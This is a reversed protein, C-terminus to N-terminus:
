EVFNTRLSLPKAFKSDNLFNGLDFDILSIFGLYSADDIDNINTMQLDSYSSGIATNLNVKADISTETIKADGRITFQGFKQFSTPLVNNSLIQPLISRLQYYNSTVNDMEAEMKFPEEDNFMNQFVFDGRIGTNDCILFLDQLGLNNLVGNISTSFTATKDKGFENFYKNLENFAVTSETFEASVKVKNLFDAFDERNYDFILNGKLVSEPTEIGLSDFRMQEKTYKFLTTLNTIHVGKASQLGLQEIQITVDPGLIQFDKSSIDLNGFDLITPSDFNEDSLRYRSNEIQIETASMFFPPTGPARPKGDDLKDVFVDLNTFDAGEYTKMNLLLGDVDIEGFELDGDIMKRLNLISTSVKQIHILTDKQYDEVYIEKIVTGLTFPSFRVREITINTGFEQNLSDTAYKALKTQVVPLSFVVTAIVGILIIIM